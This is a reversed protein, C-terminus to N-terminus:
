AENQLLLLAAVPLLVLWRHDLLIAPSVFWIAAVVLTSAKLLGLGKLQKM